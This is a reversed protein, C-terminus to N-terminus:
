GGWGWLLNVSGGWDGYIAQGIAGYFDSFCGWGSGYPQTLVYVSKQRGLQHHDYIVRLVYCGDHHRTCGVLEEDDASLTAHALLRWTVLLLYSILVSFTRVLVNLCM